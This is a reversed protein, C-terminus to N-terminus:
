GAASMAGSDWQSSAVSPMVPAQGEISDNGYAVRNHQTIAAARLISKIKHAAILMYNIQYLRKDNVRDHRWQPGGM